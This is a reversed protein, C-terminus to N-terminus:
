AVALQTGEAFAVRRLESGDKRAEAVKCCRVSLDPTFLSEATAFFKMSVVKHWFVGRARFNKPM